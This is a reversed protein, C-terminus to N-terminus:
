SLGNTNVSGRTADPALIRVAVSDHRRRAARSDAGCRAPSGIATSRSFPHSRGPSHSVIAPSFPLSAFHLICKVNPRRYTPPPPQPNASQPPTSSALPQWINRPSSPPPSVGLSLTFPAPPLPAAPLVAVPTHVVFHPPRRTTRAAGIALWHATTGAALRRAIRAQRATSAQRAAARSSAADAFTVALHGLTASAGRKTAARIATAEARVIARVLAFNGRNQRRYSFSPTM